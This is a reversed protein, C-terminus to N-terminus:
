FDQVEGSEFDDDASAAAARVPAKRGSAAGVANEDDPGSSQRDGTVRSILEDMPVGAFLTKLSYTQAIEELKAIEEQSLRSPTIPLVTYQRNLGDGKASIRWDMGQKGGPPADNNSQSWAGFVEFVREGAELIKIQKDERDIVNIAYRLSPKIEQGFHASLIQAAENRFEPNVVVSRPGAPGRVFFKYFKVAKGIPRLTKTTGSDFHVFRGKAGRNGGKGGTSGGFDKWDVESAM